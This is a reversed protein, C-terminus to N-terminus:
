NWGRLGGQDGEHRKRSKKERGLITEDDWPQNPVDTPTNVGSVQVNDFLEIFAKKAASVKLRNNTGVTVVTPTM